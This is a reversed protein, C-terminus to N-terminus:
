FNLKMKLSIIKISKKLFYKKDIHNTGTTPSIIYKINSKERYPLFLGFRM